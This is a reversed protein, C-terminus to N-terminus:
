LASQRAIECLAERFARVDCQDTGHLHRPVGALRRTGDRRRRDSGARRGRVRVFVRVHVTHRRRNPVSLVRVHALLGLRSAPAVVVRKPHHSGRENYTSLKHVPSHSRPDHIRLIARGCSDRTQKSGTGTGNHQAGHYDVDVAAAFSAAAVGEPTGFGQTCQSRGNLTSQFSAGQHQIIAVLPVCEDRRRLALGLGELLRQSEEGFHVRLRAREDHMRRHVLARRRM